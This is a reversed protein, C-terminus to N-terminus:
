EDLDMEGHDRIAVKVLTLGRKELAELKRKSDGPKIIYEIRSPRFLHFIGPSQKVEAKGGVMTALLDTSTISKRHALAIWTEGLVFGKPIQNIRRSIGMQAAEKNFHGPTKYYAEGVWILGARGIKNVPCNYCYGELTKGYPAYSHEAACVQEGRIAKLDIWTFGRTPKIGCHCVPCVNLPIPLAGCYFGPGDCVFYMAGDKRFGCGRKGEHSVRINM